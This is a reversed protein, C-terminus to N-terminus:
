DGTYTGSWLLWQTELGRDRFRAAAQRLLDGNEATIRGRGGRTANALKWEAYARKVADGNAEAEAMERKWYDKM